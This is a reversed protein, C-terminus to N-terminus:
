VMYPNQSMSLGTEQGVEQFVSVYECVNKTLLGYDEQTPKYAYWGCEGNDSWVRPIIGNRFNPNAPYKKGLVDSFRMVNVDIEGDRPNIIKGRIAEYHGAHGLTIFEFKARSGEGLDVYAARGVYKADPYASGVIKRFEKEFFDM